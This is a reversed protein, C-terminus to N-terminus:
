PRGKVVHRWQAESVISSRGKVVRRWQAESVISSRGKVVRRWQAESVISPRGKVMRRWQAEPLLVCYRFLIRKHFMFPYVTTNDYRIRVLSYSIHLRMNYVLLIPVKVKFINLILTFM